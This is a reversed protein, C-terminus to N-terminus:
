HYYEHYKYQFENRSRTFTKNFVLAVTPCDRLQQLAEQVEAQSTKHAEVIMVIQGMLPALVSSGSVALLPPSDFIVVGSRYRESIEDALNAMRRSAYLETLNTDGAGCPLVTLNPMETKILLHDLTLKSGRLFDTLGGWGHIGLRKSLDGKLPDADVLLVSHDMGTAISTALNLAVFSKGENPVSSTVMTLNRRERDPAGALSANMLLPRKIMRIQEAVLDGGTEPTAMGANIMAELNINVEQASSTSGTSTPKSNKRPIDTQEHAARDAGSASLRDNQGIGPEATQEEALKETPEAGLIVDAPSPASEISEESKQPEGDESRTLKELAKEIISM